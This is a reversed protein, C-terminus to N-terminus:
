AVDQSLNGQASTLEQGNDQFVVQAWGVGSFAFLIGGLFLLRYIM